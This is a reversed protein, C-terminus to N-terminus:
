EHRWAPKRKGIFADIGEGADHFMMNCAMEESAYEYAAELGMELQRYFVRKGAAVATQSKDIILQALAAIAADLRDAPVVRNVLGVEQAREAPVIDGTFLMEFADKRNVNRALAVGPTMCFLGLNIGSTGFSAETSAVALDCNAVLQCGAATAVGHVRAIVPQPLRVMTIMMRSCKKFLAEYYAQDPNARMEKLDHGGCFAKGRAALVVVRISKDEAITNFGTQLEDLLAESLANYQDPRNLTLTCVPGSTERLLIPENTRLESESSPIGASM